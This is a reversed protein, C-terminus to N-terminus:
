KQMYTERNFNENVVSYVYLTGSSRRLMRGFIEAQDYVDYSADITIIFRLSKPM